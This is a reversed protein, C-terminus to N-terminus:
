SRTRMEDTTPERCTGVADTRSPPHTGADATMRVSLMPKGYPRVTIM